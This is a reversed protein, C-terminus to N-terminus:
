IHWIHDGRLDSEDLPKQWIWLLDLIMELFCHTIKINEKRDDVRVSSNKVTHWKSHFEMSKWGWIVKGWEKYHSRPSFETKSYVISTPFYKLYMSLQMTPFTHPSIHESGLIAEIKTIWCLLIFLLVFLFLNRYFIKNFTLMRKHVWSFICM